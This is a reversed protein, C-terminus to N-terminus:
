DGKMREWANLLEAETIHEPRWNIMHLFLKRQASQEVQRARERSVNLMRGIEDLSHPAHNGFGYRLQIVEAERPTLVTTFADSLIDALVSTQAGQSLDGDDVTMRDGLTIGGKRVPTSLSVTHHAFARWEHLRGVSIGMLQSLESDSPKKGVQQLFDHEAMQIKTVRAINRVPTRILAGRDAIARTIAMRVWWTAYTAFRNGKRWDYKEVARILGICGDQFLDDLSVGRHTYRRAISVVLRLNACILENRADTDGQEIRQALDTEEERTLIRHDLMETPLEDINGDHM